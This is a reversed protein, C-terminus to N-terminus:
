NRSNYIILLRGINAYKQFIKLEKENKLNAWNKKFEELILRM